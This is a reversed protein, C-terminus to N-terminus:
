ESRPGGIGDVWRGVGDRISDIAASQLLGSEDAQIVAAMVSKHEAWDSGSFERVDLFTESLTASLKPVAKLGDKTYLFHYKLSGFMLAAGAVVGSVFWGVRNM